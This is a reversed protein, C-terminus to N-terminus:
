QGYYIPAQDGTGGAHGTPGYSYLDFTDQGAQGPYQYQYPNGWPDNPLKEIYPGKWKSQVDSPATLLANLGEDTTPYQDCNLRYTQLAGALTALDAKAADIKAEAQQNLVRPVILAAMIAIILVVVMIEILTFGRVIRSRSYSSKMALSM